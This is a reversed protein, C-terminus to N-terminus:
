RPETSAGVAGDSRALVIQRYPVVRVLEDLTTMGQAVKGLGDHTLTQFGGDRSLRRIEHLPAGDAIRGQLNEDVVLLEYLGIRGSYGTSRCAECGQGKRLPIGKVLSGFLREQDETLATPASCAACIRRALRQGIVGVLNAAIDSDDLGMGRLRSIAGLSNPAHLTGLVLHGTGAAELAIDASQRDRLEGILMVDPNQRLVARLMEQMSVQASVQKQNVRDVYYEIPDEVTIIKRSQDCMHVLASYLTTTKGSSTPGTVLFLGEPNALLRRFLSEVNGSMGLEDVTFLGVTTDLVRIVIDEGVPSPVVSVRFDVSQVHDAKTFIVRFRGDQPRRREAIDLDALIKVRGVVESANTPSIHTFCQHLIGDIRYRLDVDAVYRELHIDSANSRVAEALLADVIVTATADAAPAPMDLDIRRADDGAAVPSLGPFASRLVRDIEYLNLRVVEIPRGLLQVAEQLPGPKEPWAAGLIVPANPAQGVQSLIAVGHRRCFTAPLLRVSAPHPEFHSLEAFAERITIRDGLRTKSDLSM